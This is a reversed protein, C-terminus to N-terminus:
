CYGIVPNRSVFARLVRRLSAIKEDSGCDEIETFTRPMDVEILDFAPNPYDISNESLTKYYGKNMPNKILAMAGTAKIWLQGREFDSLPEDRKWLIFLAQRQHKTLPETSTGIIDLLL